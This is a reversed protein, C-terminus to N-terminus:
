NEIDVRTVVRAREGLLNIKCAIICDKKAIFINKIIFELRQIRHAKYKARLPEGLLTYRKWFPIFIILVLSIRHSGQPLSNAFLPRFSGSPSVSSLSFLQIKEHAAAMYKYRIAAVISARAANCRRKKGEREKIYKDTWKERGSKMRRRMLKMLKHCVRVALWRALYRDVERYCSAKFALM